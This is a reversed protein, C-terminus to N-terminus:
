CNGEKPHEELPNPFADSEDENERVTLCKFDKEILLDLSINDTISIQHQIGVQDSEAWNSVMRSPLKIQIQNTNLSASIEKSNEDKFISYIFRQDESLGFETIEKVLGKENLDNVEGQMLRLRISNGKIRLKM